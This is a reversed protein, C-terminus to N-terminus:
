YLLTRDKLFPELIGLHFGFPSTLFMARGEREQKGGKKKEDGVRKREM